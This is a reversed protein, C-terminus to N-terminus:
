FEYLSSGYDFFLVYTCPSRLVSPQIDKLYITLSDSTIWFIVQSLLIIEHVPSYSVEFYYYGKFIMANDDDILIAVFRNFLYYVFSFICIRKTYLKIKPIMSSMTRQGSVADRDPEDKWEFSDSLRLLNLIISRRFRFCLDDNPKIHLL